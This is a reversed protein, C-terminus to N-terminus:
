NLVVCLAAGYSTHPRMWVRIMLNIKDLANYLMTYSIRHFNKDLIRFELLTSLSTARKSICLQVPWKEGIAVKLIREALCKLETATSTVERTPVVGRVLLGHLEIEAEGRRASHLQM